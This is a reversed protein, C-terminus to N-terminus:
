RPKNEAEKNKQQNSAEKDFASQIRAAFSNKEIQGGNKQAQTSM